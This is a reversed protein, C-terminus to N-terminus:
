WCFADEALSVVVGETGVSGVVAARVADAMRGPGCSLVCLKRRRSGNNRSRQSENRIEDRLLEKVDVRHAGEGSSTCSIRLEVGKAGLVTLDGFHSSVAQILSDERASWVLVFRKGLEKRLDQEAATLHAKLYGLVSTIGIGGAFAVMTDADRFNPDLATAGYPGEIWVPVSRTRGATKGASLLARHLYRTLGHEPRIIFSISPETSDLISPSQPNLSINQLEMTSDAGPQLPKTLLRTMDQTVGPRGEDWSIISFPHSQFPNRGVTPFQLYCHQGPRVKWKVSPWVTVKVFEDGPLLEVVAKPHAKAMWQKWNCAVLRGVRVVRDFGWFAFGIYLWTEYGLIKNFRWVVHYWLGVMIVIAFAIHIFLFIEYWKKRLSLIAFAVIFGIAVAAVVGLDWYNSEYGITSIGASLTFMNDGFQNTSSSYLVVHIIGQVAAIRSIWRHLTLVDTRSFGTLFLIPTNRGSFMIALAVNAFSLVGLRDAILSVLHKHSTIYWTNPLSTPYDVVCLAVNLFSSLFRSPIYGLNAPIPRLHITGILAPLTIYKRIFSLLPRPFSFDSTLQHRIELLGLLCCFGVVAFILITGYHAHASEGRIYEQITSRSDQYFHENVLSTENLSISNYALESTPPTSPFNDELTSVALGDGTVNSWCQKAANTSVNEAACKIEICYALSSLYPQNTAHCLPDSGRQQNPLQPRTCSLQLGWLSSLCSYCCLPDFVTRGYGVLGVNAAASTTSLSLLLVVFSLSFACGVDNLTSPVWKVTHQLGIYARDLRKQSKAAKLAQY